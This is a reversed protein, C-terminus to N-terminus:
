GRKKTTINYVKEVFDKPKRMLYNRNFDLCKGTQEIADVMQRKTM